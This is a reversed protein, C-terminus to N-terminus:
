IAMGMKLILSFICVTRMWNICLCVRKWACLSSVCLQWTPLVLICISRSVPM